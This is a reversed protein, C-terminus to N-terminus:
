LSKLTTEIDIMILIIARMYEVDVNRLFHLGKSLVAFIGHGHYSIDTCGVCSSCEILSKERAVFEDLILTGYAIYM